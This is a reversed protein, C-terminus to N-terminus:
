DWTKHGVGDRNYKHGNVHCSLMRRSPPNELDKQHFAVLIYYKKSYTMYVNYYNVNCVKRM